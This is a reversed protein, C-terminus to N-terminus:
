RISTRVRFSTYSVHRKRRQLIIRCQLLPPFSVVFVRSDHRGDAKRSDSGTGLFALCVCLSSSMTMNTKCEMRSVGLVESIRNM